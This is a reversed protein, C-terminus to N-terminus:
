EPLKVDGTPKNCQAACSKGINTLQGNLYCPDQPVSGVGYPNTAAKACCVNFCGEPDPIEIKYLANCTEICKYAINSSVESCVSQICIKRLKETNEQIKKEEAQKLQQDSLKPAIGPLNLRVLDPNITRLILVSALVLVLGILADQIQGRAEKQKSTNDGSTAYTIGAITIQIIAAIVAAYLALRYLASLYEAPSQPCSSLFPALSIEMCQTGSFWNESTTATTTTTAATSVTQPAVQAGQQALGVNSLALLLFTFIVFFNPKKRM